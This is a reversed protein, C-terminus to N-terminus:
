QTEHHVEAPLNNPELAFVLHARVVHCDREGRYDKARLVQELLVNHRHVSVVIHHDAHNLVVVLDEGFVELDFHLADLCLKGFLFISM